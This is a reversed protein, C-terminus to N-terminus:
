RMFLAHMSQREIVCCTSAGSVAEEPKEEVKKDPIKDTESDSGQKANVMKEIYNEFSKKDRGGSYKEIQEFM